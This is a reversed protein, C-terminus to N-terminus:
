GVQRKFWLHEQYYSLGHIHFSGSSALEWGETGLKNLYDLAAQDKYEKGEHEVRVERSFRPLGYSKSQDLFDSISNRVVCLTYEWKAM